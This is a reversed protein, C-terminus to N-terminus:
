QCTAAVDRCTTAGASPQFMMKTHKEHDDPFEFLYQHKGAIGAPLLSGYSTLKISSTAKSEIDKAITYLTGVTFKGTKPEDGESPGQTLQVLTKDGLPLQWLICRKTGDYPIFHGGGVSGLVTNALLKMDEGQSLLWYQDKEDRLMTLGKIAKCEAVVKVSAKLAEESDHTVLGEAVTDPNTGVVLRPDKTNESGDEGDPEAAPKAAMHQLM